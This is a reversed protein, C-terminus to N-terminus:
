GRNIRSSSDLHRMFFPLCCSHRRSCMQRSASIISDARKGSSRTAPRLRAAAMVRDEAPPPPTLTANAAKELDNLKNHQVIRYDICQQLAIKSNELENFAQQLHVELMTRKASDEIPVMEARESAVKLEDIRTSCMM